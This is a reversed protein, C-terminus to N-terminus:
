ETVLTPTVSRVLKLSDDTTYMDANTFEYVFSTCLAENKCPPVYKLIALRNDGGPMTSNGIFAYGVVPAETIHVADKIDLDPRVRTIYQEVTETAEDPYLIKFRQFAPTAEKVYDWMSGEETAFYLRFNNSLLRFKETTPFQHVQVPNSVWGPGDLIAQRQADTLDELRPLEFAELPGQAGTQLNWSKRV